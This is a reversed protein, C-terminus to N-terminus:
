AHSMIDEVGAPRISLGWEEIVEMINNLDEYFIILLDDRGARKLASKVAEKESLIQIVEPTEKSGLESSYETHIGESILHAVEGRKRGRPDKDEKVIFDNLYRAAVKGAEFVMQDDRDGPVGVVGLVNNKNINTAMELVKEWGPPNHGYDILLKCGIEECIYINCRGPSDELSPKFNRISDYCKEEKLGLSIAATLSALVNEINHEAFGFITLPIEVLNGLFREMKGRAWVIQGDKVFLCSGGAGLHRKIVKNNEKRSFYIVRGRSSKSMKVVEPDDANLVSYGHLKTAEVVLSKIYVIDEITEIDDQGIHDPAINTVVAIDALDYGLGMRQLGGRATELVCAEVRQDTLVTKASKPGTTDGKVIKEEGVYIGDTSTAGVTFGEDGLIRRLLRSITTKGNTGTISIIPVQSDKGGPFLNDLILAGVDRSKGMTPHQHMRIGPAANIEIIASDNERPSKSIDETVFDVGGIDLGILKCARKALRANDKHVRETVDIAIGGTSLNASERLYVVEGREPMYNMTMNNRALVMNVVPDVSIKSLPKEHGEGRLPNNENEIDILNRVTNEGDGIVHAPLRESAAVLKNNIILLRYHRGEIHQEVIVELSYNLAVRYAARLEDESWINLTVGKGQNGDRPKLVLPYGIEGAATIAEKESTVVKGHPVLIGMEALLENTKKKDCALDVGICSTRDTTTAQIRRSYKGQGLQFLSSDEDLRLFPVEKRKAAKLIAETSPGLKKISVIQKIEEIKEGIQTDKNELIKYIIDIAYNLALKAGDPSKQEVVIDYIGEKGKSRTTGYNTGIGAQGMLELTIHEAVHGFLTGMKLRELFGGPYGRSCHHEKLSPINNLLERTFGRVENTKLGTLAELDVTAKLVPDHSYINRGKYVMTELIKM